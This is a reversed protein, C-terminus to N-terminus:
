RVFLEGGLFKFRAIDNRLLSWTNRVFDIEKSTLETQNEAKLEDDSDSLNSLRSRLKQFM